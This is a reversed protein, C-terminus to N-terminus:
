TEEKTHAEIRVALVEILEERCKHVPTRPPYRSAVAKAAERVEEADLGFDEAAEFVPRLQEMGALM